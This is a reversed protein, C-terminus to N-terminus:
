KIQIFIKEKKITNFLIKYFPEVIIKSNLIQDIGKDKGLLICGDTDKPFNGVHIRIGGFCPVNLLLPMTRQFRESYNIVIEYTGRPIATENQIKAQCGKKEIDRDIDELTYCYFKDDISLEGITSKDSFINRKLILNM